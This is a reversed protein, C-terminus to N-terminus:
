PLPSTRTSKSHQGQKATFPPAISPDLKPAPEIAVAYADEGFSESIKVKLIYVQGALVTRISKEAAACLNGRLEKADDSSSPYNAIQIGIGVKNAFVQETRDKYEVDISEAGLSLAHGCLGKLLTAPKGMRNAAAARQFNDCRVILRAPGFFAHM